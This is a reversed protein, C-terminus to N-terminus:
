AVERGAARRRVLAEVASECREAESRDLPARAFKVRDWLSLLLELRVLDSPELAGGGLRALLEASTDGPRPTGLTAELYRRLIRTLAVAHEGFRGAEPLRQARLQALAELAEDSPHRRPAAAPAAARSPVPKRRRGGLWRVFLVTAALLALGLAVFGWPVREWWPAGLPGRVPKLGQASDAATVTPLVLLKVGPTRARLKAGGLKTMDIRVGIGPVQVTGTRFVQLPITVSVSDAYEGLESGHSMYRLQRRSVAPQGRMAVPKGWTFDGGPEPPEFKVEAARPVIVSAHLVLQQGLRAPAPSVGTRTPFRRLQSVASRSGHTLSEPLAVAGSDALRAERREAGGAPVLRLLAAVLLAVVAGRM